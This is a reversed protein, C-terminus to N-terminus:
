EGSSISLRTRIAPPTQGIGPKILEAGLEGREFFQRAFNDLGLFFFEVYAFSLVLRLSSSLFGILFSM